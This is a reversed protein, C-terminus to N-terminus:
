LRNAIMTEVRAMAVTLDDVKNHLVDMQVGLSDRLSVISATNAEVSDKNMDVQKSQGGAAFIYVCFVLVSASGVTVAIKLGGNRIKQTM